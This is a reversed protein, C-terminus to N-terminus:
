VDWESKSDMVPDRIEQLDSLKALVSWLLNNNKTKNKHSRLPEITSHKVRSQLAPTRAEVTDSGQTRSCSM